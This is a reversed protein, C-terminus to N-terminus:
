LFTLIDYVLKKSVLLFNFKIKQQGHMEICDKYIVM